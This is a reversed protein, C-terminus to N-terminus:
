EQRRILRIHEGFRERYLDLLRHRHGSEEEAMAAFMKATDPYNEQLGHAFADYIRSGKEELGMALAILERESLDSLKEDSGGADM